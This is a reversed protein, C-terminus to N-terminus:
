WDVPAQVQPEPGLTKDEPFLERLTRLPHFPLMLIKPIYLPELKPQGLRGGIRYSFLKTFPLFVRSIMWGLAPTGRFLEAEIKGQVRGDFDVTGDLQFRMTPTRIELDRTALLNSTVMFTATAQRARSNAIGPVVTNLLPSLYRFLPLDWILGDRLMIDGDGWWSLESGTHANTITLRGSLLGELTNTTEPFLDRLLPKASVNTALVEFRYDMVKPRTFDFWGQGEVEGGKLSGRFNTLTLTDGLWHLGARARSLRFERWQFDGGEVQFHADDLGSKTHIGVRGEFRVTPPQAFQYPALTKVIHAGISHAVASMEVTGLANTLNVTQDRFDVRVV